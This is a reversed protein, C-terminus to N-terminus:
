PVPVRLLRRVRRVLLEHGVLALTLTTAKDQDEADRRAAAAYLTGSSRRTSGRKRTAGTAAAAAAAASKAVLFRCRRSISSLCISRNCASRSARSDSASVHTTEHTTARPNSSRVTVLLYNKEIEGKPFFHCCLM